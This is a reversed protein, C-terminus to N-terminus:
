CLTGIDHLLKESLSSMGPNAQIFNDYNAVLGQYIWDQDIMERILESQQEISISSSLYYNMQHVLMSLVDYRLPLLRGSKELIERLRSIADIASTKKGVMGGTLSEDNNARYTILRRDLTTIKGALALASYTFSIDECNPLSQFRLGKSRVFSSKFLKNWPAPNTIRFLGNHVDRYDFVDLEPLFKQNLYHTPESIERSAQDFIKGDFITVDANTACAKSFVEEITTDAIFDDADLFLLYRGRAMDMGRNRAPGATQNKQTVYSLRSYKSSYEALIQVSDDTSGDDVCIVEFNQFSQGIVSDLTQELYKASNFVPIIVSVDFAINRAVDLSQVFDESLENTKILQKDNMSSLASGEQVLAIIMSGSALYDAYKSPLYPNNEGSYETDNLFLFDMRAALSLMELYGVSDNTKLQSNEFGMRKIDDRIGDYSSKFYDPTFVHLVVRPNKLLEIMPDHRRNTYFSGFYAINIKDADLPYAPTVAGVFASDIQPHPWILSRKMVSEKEESSLASKDLMLKQQNSNTFIIKDAREYVAAEVEQYCQRKPRGQVDLSLPDSFEAFWTAEPYLEKYKYAALHSGSMQSRSYVYPTEDFIAREFARQGWWEFDGIKKTNVESKQDYQHQAYILDYMPDTSRLSSWDQKYVNWGVIEGVYDSIQSLRRSAVYASPDAEPAFLQCFVTGRSSAFRARNILLAKDSRLRGRVLRASEQTEDRACYDEVQLSQAKIQRILFKKHTVSTSGDLVLTSLYKLIDLKDTVYDLLQSPEPRSMSKEMVRRMYAENSEQSVFALEGSINGFNEAWFLIDESHRVYEPIRYFATRMLDTRILKSTCNGFLSTAWLYDTSYQEKQKELSRNIYTDTEIQGSDVDFLKGFIISVDKMALELMEQLYGRSLWDDDDLFTVYNKSAHQVGVNRAHGLGAQQTYIVSVNSTSNYESQLHEFHIRDSGNVVILLEVLSEDITQGLVSDIAEQLTPTVKWTALVVTVGLDLGEVPGPENKSAIM